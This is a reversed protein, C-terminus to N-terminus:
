YRKTVPLTLGVSLIVLPTVALSGICDEMQNRPSCNRVFDIGHGFCGSKQSLSDSESRSILDNFTHRCCNFGNSIDSHIM